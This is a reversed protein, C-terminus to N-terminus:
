GARWETGQYLQLCEDELGAVVRQGRLPGFPATVVTHRSEGTGNDGYLVVWDRTGALRKAGFGAITDLRGDHAAAEARLYAGVLGGVIV